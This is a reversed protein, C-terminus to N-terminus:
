SARCGVSWSTSQRRPEATRAARDARGRSRLIPEGFVELGQTACRPAPRSWTPSSTPSGSRSPRRSRATWGSWRAPSATSPWTRRSSDPTAPPWGCATSTPSATPSARGPRRVPLDLRRLRAAHGRRRPRGLRAAPRPRHHGVDLTGAGVYVAIDRPRLFFFEVDNEVDALILEKATGAAATAPRACCRPPRNPSPARTPCPSAFCPCTGEALRRDSTPTSTTSRSAALRADAGAPPLAAPQDGGGHAGPVRARRGDLGRRGGRRDEQRDCPRRRGARRRHRLGRPPHGGQRHARRVVPRFDECPDLNRHQVPRGTWADRTPRVGPAEPPSPHDNASPSGSARCCRVPRARTSSRRRPRGTTGATTRGGRGTAADDGRDDDGDDRDHNDHDDRHCATTTVHDNHDRDDRHDDGHDNRDRDNRDRNNRDRGAPAYLPGPGIPFGGRATFVLGGLVNADGRIGFEGAHHADHHFPCLAVLNDLDTRGGHAWHVVHHVQLHATAVCGPFRCGRDRDLVLRRTREPVIRLARGVSVPVGAREWLPQLTGECTLKAVLHGPLRPRGNLWGGEADLHVYVRFSDRRSVSEVSGLSRGCVELLADAGTVEPVGAAFLADRAEAVAAEVLAGVDAPASFRLEFRGQRTGM